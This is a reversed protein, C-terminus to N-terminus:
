DNEWGALEPDSLENGIKEVCYKMDRLEGFEIAEKIGAIYKYRNIVYQGSEYEVVFVRDTETDIVLDKEYLEEGNVDVLGTYQMLEIDDFDREYEEHKETFPKAYSLIVVEEIWDIKTVLCMKKEVEDYARFNIKRM